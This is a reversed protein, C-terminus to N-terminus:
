DIKSCRGIAYRNDFSSEGKEQAVKMIIDKEELEGQRYSASGPVIRIVTINGDKEQLQAGIGELQGSMSIDFNEKKKPAFYGTHPGYVNMLANIYVEMQDSQEWKSMREFFRDNSKLVKKRAKEELEFFSNVTATDSEEKAKMQSEEMEAIRTLTQYKLIKRWHDKLDDRTVAFDRKEEDLELAEEKTFDFPEKLIDQYYGQAEKLRIQLVDWSKDFLTFDSTNVQDDIGKEFDKLSEVDQKLLFRKSFDLRELYLDFAGQSYEDDISKPEFHRAQISEMLVSLLVKNKTPEEGSPPDVPGVESIIYSSLLIAIATSLLFQIGKFKM